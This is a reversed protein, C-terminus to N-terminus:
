RLYEARLIEFRRMSEELGGRRSRALWNERQRPLLAELADCLQRSTKDSKGLWLLNAEASHKLWDAVLQYEDQILAADPRNMRSHVLPQLIDDIQQIYRRLADPLAALAIGGQITADELVKRADDATLRLSYTLLNGNMHPPSVMRYVNGLDYALKGMVRAEDRFAFADLAAPVDLDHNAEYNWAVAAGVMFGLYSVPLPQWHGHDGWDTILYGIAGHKRGAQAAAHLNGLTNKTRGALTNWSSTGPCVYFPLGAQAFIGCHGDFDHNAEYGWELAIIDRPIEPVLDPYHMIIDAWFLMTRNHKTVSQHLRLLYDLYVRGGRAQVEARSAGQGLEWPEDGGVNFLKSSFHPLLETYLSEILALSGPHLPALTSSPLIKGPMWPPEFGDPAEALENYPAHKLWREMHGLSNQNPVLEVHRQRCYIDLALIEEGTFPSAQAWVDAHSQYAFTHEMYLQLQNVKWSALLDVLEYLTDMTPVRDRSVDLMVGRAPFDPYDMIALCPLAQGTSTQLLQRLTCVGYFVGARDHGCIEIYDANITLMHGQAHPITADINLKLGIKKDSGGGAVIRWECKVSKLAEQAMQAEFFLEAPAVILASNHLQMVGEVRKLQRPVPCLLLDTM